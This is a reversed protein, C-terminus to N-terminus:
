ASPISSSMCCARMEGIIAEQLRPSLAMDRLEKKVKDKTRLYDKELKPKRRPGGKSHFLEEEFENLRDRIESLKKLSVTLKKLQKEDAEPGREEDPDTSPEDNERRINRRLEAEGKLVKEAIEVCSRPYGTSGLVEDEVEIEGAESASPSKM